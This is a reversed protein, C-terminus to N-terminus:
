GRRRSPAPSIVEWLVATRFQAGPKRLYGTQSSEGGVPLFDMANKWRNAAPTCALWHYYMGM